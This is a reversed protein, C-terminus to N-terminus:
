VHIISPSFVINDLETSYYDLHRIILIVETLCEEYKEIVKFLWDSVRKYNFSFIFIIFVGKSFSDVNSFTLDNDNCEMMKKAKCHIKCQTTIFIFVQQKWSIGKTRKTGPRITAFVTTYWIQLCKCYSIWQSIIHNFGKQLEVLPNCAGHRKTKNRFLCWNDLLSAEEIEYKVLSLGWYYYALLKHM